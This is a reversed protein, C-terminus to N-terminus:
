CYYGWKDPYYVDHVGELDDRPNGYKDYLHSELEIVATIGGKQAWRFSDIEASDKLDWPNFIENLQYIVEKDLRFLGGTEDPDLANNNDTVGYVSVCRFQHTSNEPHDFDWEGFVYPTDPESYMGLTEYIEGETFVPDMCEAAESMHPTHGEMERKYVICFEDGWNWQFPQIRVAGHPPHAPTWTWAGPLGGDEM